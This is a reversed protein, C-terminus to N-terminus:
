YLLKQLNRANIEEEGQNIYIRIAEFCNFDTWRGSDLIPNNNNDFGAKQVYRFIANSQLYGIALSLDANATMLIVLMDKKVEYIRRLGEETKFRGDEQSLDPMNIDLLVIDVHDSIDRFFTEHEHFTVVEVNYGKLYNQMVSLWVKDDDLAWVAVKIKESSNM